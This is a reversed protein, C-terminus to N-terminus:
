NKHFLKENDFEYPIFDGEVTMGCKCGYKNPVMDMKIGHAMCGFPLCLSEKEGKDTILTANNAFLTIPRKYVDLM